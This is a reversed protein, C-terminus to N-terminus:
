PAPGSTRVARALSVSLLGPRTAAPSRALKTWRRGRARCVGKTGTHDCRSTRPLPLEPFDEVEELYRKRTLDLQARTQELLDELSIYAASWYERERQLSGVADTVAMIQKLETVEKSAIRRLLPAMVPHKEAAPILSEGAEITAM